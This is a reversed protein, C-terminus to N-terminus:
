SGVKLGKTMFMTSAYYIQVKRKAQNVYSKVIQKTILYAERNNKINGKSIRQKIILNWRWFKKKKLTGHNEKESLLVLVNVTTKINYFNSTKAIFIPGILWLCINSM